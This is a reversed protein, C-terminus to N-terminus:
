PNNFKVKVFVGIELLISDFNEQAERWDIYKVEGAPRSLIKEWSFYPNHCFKGPLIKGLLFKERVTKGPTKGEGTLGFNPPVERGFHICFTFCKRQNCSYVFKGIKQEGCVTAVISNRDNWHM